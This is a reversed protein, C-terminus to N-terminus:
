WVARWRVSEGPSIAERGGPRARCKCPVRQPSMRLVGQCRVKGQFAIAERDFCYYGACVFPHRKDDRAPVRRVPVRASADPRLRADEECSRSRAFLLARTSWAPSACAM